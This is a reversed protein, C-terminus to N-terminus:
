KRGQNYFNGTPHHHPMNSGQSTQLYPNFQGPNNTQPLRPIPNHFQSYQFHNTPVQNTVPVNNGATSMMMPTKSQSYQHQGIDLTRGSVSSAGSSVNMSMSSSQPFVSALEQMDNLTQLEAKEFPDSESEFESFNILGQATNPKSQSGHVLQTANSRSPELYTAVPISSTSVKLNPENNESSNQNDPQSAVVSSENAASNNDIKEELTVQATAENQHNSSVNNSNEVAAASEDLALSRFYNSLTLFM